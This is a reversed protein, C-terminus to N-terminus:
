KESKVGSGKKNQVIVITKIYGSKYYGAKGKGADTVDDSADDSLVNVQYTYGSKIQKSLATTTTQAPNTGDTSFLVTIVKLEDSTDATVNNAAITKLLSKVENASVNEGFYQDFKSNQAQAEERNLNAKSVTSSMRNVVLVGLGIIVLSILVAGAIILAKSANEM